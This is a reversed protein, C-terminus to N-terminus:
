RHLRPTSGAATSSPATAASDLASLPDVTFLARGADVQAARAQGDHVLHDIAQQVEARDTAFSTLGLEHMARVNDRGHGPLPRFGVVPLGIALAEIATQGAANDILVDSARMLDAVDDRWGLVTTTPSAAQQQLSRRLRENRGCLVITVHSPSSIERVAEAVDGTGWAGASVLVLPEDLPVGIESRIRARAISTDADDLFAQRVLPAAATAPRGTRATIEGATRQTLCVFADNGQHCWMQHAVFDSVLVVSPVALRSSSRLRGTIQGCLHFTSLVVDPNYREVLRAIAPSSAAVLPDPRRTNGGPVFFERYILDYLWPTHRLMASYGGRLLPGIGFPLVGLIDVVDASDGRETLRRQLEQAVRQHGDGMSATLILYRRM